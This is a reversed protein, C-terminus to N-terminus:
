IAMGVKIRKKEGKLNYKQLLIYGVYKRKIM